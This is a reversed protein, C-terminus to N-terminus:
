YEAHEHEGDFTFSRFEPHYRSAIESLRYSKCQGCSIHNPDVRTM